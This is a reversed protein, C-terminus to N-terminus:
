KLGKEHEGASYYRFLLLKGTELYKYHIRCAKSVRFRREDTKGRVPEDGLGRDSVAEGQTLTLRKAISYLIHSRYEMEGSIDAIFSESFEYEYCFAELGKLLKTTLTMEIAKKFKFKDQYVEPWCSQSIDIYRFLDEPNAVVTPNLANEHCECFFRYAAPSTSDHFGMCLYANTSEGMAMHVLKLFKELVEPSLDSGPFAPVSQCACVDSTESLLMKLPHFKKYLIPFFQNSWNSDSVWPTAYVHNMLLEELSDTWFIKSDTYTDVIDLYNIFRELFIDRRAADRWASESIFLISPDFICNNEM